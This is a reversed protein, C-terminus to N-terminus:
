VSLGIVTKLNGHQELQPKEYVARQNESVEAQVQETEVEQNM